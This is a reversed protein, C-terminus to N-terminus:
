HCTKKRSPWAVQDGDSMGSSKITETKWQAGRAGLAESTGHWGWVLSNLCRLRSSDKM